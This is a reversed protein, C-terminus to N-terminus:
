DCFCDHMSVGDNIRKSISNIDTLNIWKNMKSLDLDYTNIRTMNVHGSPQHDEPNLGFSYVNVESSNINCHAGNMGSKWKDSGIWKKNDQEEEITWLDSPKWLDIPKPIRKTEWSFSKHKKRNKNKRLLKKMMMYTISSSSLSTIGYDDKEWITKGNEVGICIYKTDTSSNFWVSGVGYGPGIPGIHTEKIDVWMDNVYKYSVRCFSNGCKDWTYLTYGDKISPFVYPNPNNVRSHKYEIDNHDLEYIPDIDSTIVFDM